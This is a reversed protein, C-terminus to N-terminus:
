IMKTNIFMSQYKEAVEKQVKRRNIDIADYNKELINICDGDLAKEDKMNKLISLTTEPPLGRRYPRDETLATFVDTVAIIRSPISIENEKIRFPYGLGSPREHHFAAWFVIEGLGKIGNLIHYTHYPHSKIINFEFNSLKGPKELIEKPVSLKGLDHLWGAIKIKICTDSDFGMLSALIEASIAVGTSHFTTFRSRFDIIQYFMGAIEFISKDKLTLEQDYYFNYLHKTIQPSILDFWFSERKSLSLFAKVLEPAFIQECNKKILTCFMDQQSLIEEHDDILGGVREAIHLIHSSIPVNQDKFCVGQGNQWPVHHYRIINAADILPEYERILQYGIESHIHPNTFDYYFEDLSEDLSLAGSDHLMGALILDNIMKNNFGIEKGIQMAIFAVRHHHDMLIPSVLDIALSLGNVIDFLKINM